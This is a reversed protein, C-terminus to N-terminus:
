PQKLEFWFRSGEGPTSELGVRGGMRELGKQVIALGIGTGPYKEGNLRAFLRFIETQHGTHIGIGNDEVWVRVFGERNETSLRLLPARDPSLFKLANSMLNFLVQSLTPEHAQVLPWPGIAEVTAGTDRIQDELRSLVSDVPGKLNVAALEVRQQSIRSFALLDQLLADMYQASKSIRGAHQQAVENLAGASEEVLMAAFGQMARLPARLDHAISYVFAELQKNTASLEGTRETVALELHQARDALQSQALNLADEAQKRRTIDRIAATILTGTESEMPSLSVEVPFETGDKRLGALILGVGMPRTQPDALFGTRYEPHRERFRQPILVEIKKGILEDRSYGFMKETQANILEIMGERGTIIMADPAAELLGRFKREAIKRETIDRINCQIIKSGAEEYLNSVFEVERRTGSKTELPLDEYRIFGTRHLEKFAAQSAVEDKLLGIEFLEKGILEQHPYGLLEVMFPNADVIKRTAPNIVLVGDQAAEFLRRYRLESQRM